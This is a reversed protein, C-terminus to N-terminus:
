DDIYANKEKCVIPEGTYKEGDLLSKDIMLLM